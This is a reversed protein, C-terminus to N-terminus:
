AGRVGAHVRTAGVRFRARRLVQPRDSLAGRSGRAGDASRRVCPQRRHRGGRALAFHGLSSAELHLSWILLQPGARRLRGFPFATCAARERRPASDVGDGHRDCARACHLARSASAGFRGRTGTDRLRVSCPTTTVDSRGCERVLDSRATRDVGDTAHDSSRARASTDRGSSRVGRDGRRRARRDHDRDRGGGDAPSPCTREACDLVARRVTPGRPRRSRHSQSASWCPRPVRCRSPRTSSSPPSPRVAAWRAHRATRRCLLPPPPTAKRRACARPRSRRRPSIPSSRHRSSPTPMGM